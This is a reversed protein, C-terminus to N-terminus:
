GAMRLRLSSLVVDSSGHQRSGDNGPGCRAMQVFGPGRDRNYGPNVIFQAGASAFVERWRATYYSELITKRGHRLNADGL